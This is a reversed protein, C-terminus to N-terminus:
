LIKDAYFATFRPNIENSNLDDSGKAVLVIQREKVAAPDFTRVNAVGALGGETLDATPSKYVDIANVFDSSFITFDFTRTGTPTPLERGDLNVQTFKPDLGRISVFQGEGASRQIQVGTIRQLSEALNQEPFKGIDEAAITDVIAAANRKNEVATALSERFGSVVIEQLEDAAATTGASTAATNPEAFAAYSSAGLCLVGALLSLDLTKM